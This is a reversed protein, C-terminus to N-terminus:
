SFDKFKRDPSRANRWYNRVGRVILLVGALTPLGGVVLAAPRVPSYYFYATCSGCLGVILAGVVVLIIAGSQSRHTDPQPDSM